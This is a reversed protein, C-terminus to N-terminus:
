RNESIDASIKPIEAGVPPVARKECACVDAQAGPVRAPDGAGLQVSDAPHAAQERADRNCM